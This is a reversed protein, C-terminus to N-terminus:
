LLCLFYHWVFSVDPFLILRETGKNFYATLLQIICLTLEWDKGQSIVGSQADKKKTRLYKEM